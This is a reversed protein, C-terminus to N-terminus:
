GGYWACFTVAPWFVLFPTPEIVQRLFLSIILAILIALVSGFYVALRSRAGSDLRTRKGRPRSAPVQNMSNEGQPAYICGTRQSSRRILWYQWFPGANLIKRTPLFITLPSTSLYVANNRAIGINYCKLNPGSLFRPLLLSVNVM